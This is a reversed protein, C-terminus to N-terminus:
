GHTRKLNYSCLDFLMLLTPKMLLYGEKQIKENSLFLNTKNARTQPKVIHFKPIM